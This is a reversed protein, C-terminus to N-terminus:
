KMVMGARQTKTSNNFYNLVIRHIGERLKEDSDWGLLCEFISMRCKPCLDLTKTREESRASAPDNQNTGDWVHYRKAPHEGCIDCVQVTAMV